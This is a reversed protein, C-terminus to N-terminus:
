DNLPIKEGPEIPDAGKKPILDGKGRDDNKPDILGEDYYLAKM